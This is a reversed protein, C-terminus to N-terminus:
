PSRISGNPAKGVPTVSPLRNFYVCSTSSKSRQPDPQPNSFEVRRLSHHDQVNDHTASEMPAAFVTSGCEILLLLAAFCSVVWNDATV